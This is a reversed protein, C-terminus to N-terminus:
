SAKPKEAGRPLLDALHQQGLCSVLIESLRVNIFLPEMMDVLGIFAHLFSTEKM